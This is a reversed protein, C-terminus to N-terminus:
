SKAAFETLVNKEVSWYVGVLWIKDRKQGYKNTCSSWKDSFNGRQFSDRFSFGNQIGNWFLSYGLINRTVPALWFARFSSDVSKTFVLTPYSNIGLSVVGARLPMSLNCWSEPLKIQVSTLFISLNLKGASTQYTPCYVILVSIGEWTFWSKLLEKVEQTEIEQVKLLHNM